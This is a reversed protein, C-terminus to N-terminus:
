RRCLQLTPGANVYKRRTKLCPLTFPVGHVAGTLATLLSLALQCEVQEIRKTSM